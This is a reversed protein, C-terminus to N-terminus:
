DAAGVLAANDATVWVEVIREGVVRYMVFEQTAVARGTPASERFPGLDTGADVFHAAIWPPEV